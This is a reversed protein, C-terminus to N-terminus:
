NGSKQRSSVSAFESVIYQFKIGAKVKKTLPDFLDGPIESLIEYIYEDANKYVDKWKELTKQLAKSIHALHWSVM